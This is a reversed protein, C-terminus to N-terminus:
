RESQHRLLLPLEFTAEAGLPPLVLSRATSVLCQSSSPSITGSKVRASRVKGQASVVLELIVEGQASPTAKLWKEYCPALKPRQRHLESKIQALAMLDPGPGEPELPRLAASASFGQGGVLEAWSEQLAGGPPTLGLRHRGASVLEVFPAPGLRVGDLSVQTGAALGTADFRTWPRRPVEPAMVSHLPEEHGDRLASGDGWRVALPAKVVRREATLTDVVEVQGEAVGLVMEAGTRRLSFLASSSLVRRSSVLMQVPSGIRAVVEGAGLSLSAAGGLSLSGSGRFAWAIGEDEAALLVAQASLADGSLAVEGASLPRWAEQGRRVQAASARLVTLSHFPAVAGARAESALRADPRVADEFVFLALGAAGAAVVAAAGAGGLWRLWPSSPEAHGLAVAENLRAEVRRFAVESLTYSKMGALMRLRGQASRLQGRCKACVFLHRAVEDGSGAQLSPSSGEQAAAEILEPELHKM